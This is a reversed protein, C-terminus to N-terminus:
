SDNNLWYILDDIRRGDGSFRANGDADVVIDYPAVGDMTCGKCWIRIGTEDHHVGAGEGMYERDRQTLDILRDRQDPSIRITRPQKKSLM